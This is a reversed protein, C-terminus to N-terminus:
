PTYMLGSRESNTASLISCVSTACGGTEKSIDAIQECNPPAMTGFPEYEKGPLTNPAKTTTFLM